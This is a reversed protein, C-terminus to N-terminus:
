GGAGRTPHGTRSLGRQCASQRTHQAGRVQPDIRNLGGHDPAAKRVRRNAGDAVDDGVFDGRSRQRQSYGHNYVRDIRYRLRSDAPMLKRLYAIEMDQLRDDGILDLMTTPCRVTTRVKSAL